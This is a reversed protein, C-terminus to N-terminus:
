FNQRAPRESLDRLMGFLASLEAQTPNLRQLWAGFANRDWNKKRSKEAFADDLFDLLAGTQEMTARKRHTIAPKNRPAMGDGELVGSRCLEYCAVAVAHALNLSMQGAVPIECQLGCLNLDELSLGASERGFVLAIKEYSKPELLGALKPLSAHPVPTAFLRRSFAIAL